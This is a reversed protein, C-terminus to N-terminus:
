AGGERQVLLTVLVYAYVLSDALIEVSHTLLLVNPVQYALVVDYAAVFVFFALGLRVVLQRRSGTWIIMIPLTVLIFLFSRLFQIALILGADPLALGAAGERYYDAVIPSVIIGFLFYVVPFSAIAAAIRWTWQGLSRGGFFASVTPAPLDGEIRPVFLSATAAALVLCPLFFVPVMLLTGETSSFISTEITSSVAFSVFLFVVLILWRGWFSGRVKRALPALGIALAVSGTLLYYGALTEAAQDPMRPPNLGFASFVIRSVILGAAFLLGCLMIRWLNGAVTKHFQMPKM